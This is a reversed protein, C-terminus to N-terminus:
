FAGVANFSAATLALQGLIQSLTSALRLPQVPTLDLPVVITDGPDIQPQSAFWGRKIRVEGSVKVVYIRRNDALDTTGGSLSVYDNRSLGDRYLHSTPFQVEGLVTVADPRRPILLRDGDELVVSQRKGELLAPLDVVLRGIPEHDDLRELLAAILQAADGHNNADDSQGNSIASSVLSSRLREALRELQEREKRKLAERTFLAGRAFAEGTLGGARRVVDAISEDRSVQYVGPFRVEGELEIQATALSDPIYRISVVDQPQILVSRQSSLIANLDLTSIELGAVPTGKSERIVPRAIEAEYLFAQEQFGGAARILDAVDTQEHNLPYVGPFRVAGTIRATSLPASMGSQSRLLEVIEDIQERRTAREEVLPRLLRREAQPYPLGRKPANSRLSGTLRDAEQGARASSVASPDVPFRDLEPSRKRTPSEDDDDGSESQEVANSFFYLSDGPQLALDASSGRQAFARRPNVYHVMVSADQLSQRLLLAFDLDALPKLAAASPVLDTLRMADSWPRRGTREIHGYTAVFDDARDIASAVSIHDGAKLRFRGAGTRTTELLEKRGANNFREVEILGDVAGPALGGAMEIVRDLTRDDDLEYIAPRRVAGSVAVTDGVPPVFITDGAQLAVDATTDGDLLLDYLDLQQEVQGNRRLEINRLSGITRIGGSVLLANTLTSLASITYAGPQRAEGVVLVRISRLGAMSLTAQVGIRQDAIETEVAQRAREFTLGAVRLEGIEPLFVMGDRGVPLEFRGSEKGTLRLLFSDGPAIRYDAPVPVDDVPAFTSPRSAFLEYGFPRLGTDPDLPAIDDITLRDDVSDRDNAGEEEEGGSRRSQSEASQQGDSGLRRYERALRERQAPSLEEALELQAHAAEPSWVLMGVLLLKMAFCLSRRNHEAVSESM